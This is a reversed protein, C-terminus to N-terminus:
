APSVTAVATRSGLFNVVLGVLVLTSGAIEVPTVTERLFIAAAALGAVPVLLSFASVTNAPHRALLMGWVAYGFITAAYAMFLISGAGVWSIHALAFPVAEPGEILLSLLFLPVPAVLSLWVVFSLMDIRGARKALINGTGWFLASIITILLPVLAASGIKDAAITAIGAFAVAGGIINAPKLNEGFLLVALLVTFFAQLQMVISALGAPMGLKLAIFLLGFQCVGIALGYAVLLKLGVAPRRVFFVAPVAAFFYRLGTLLLPPVEAVGWRMPVFNFGWIAAVIVALAIERPSM